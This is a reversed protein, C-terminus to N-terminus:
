SCRAPCIKLEQPTAVEIVNAGLSEANAALDVPLIGGQLEDQTIMVIDSGHQLGKHGRQKRCVESVATDM